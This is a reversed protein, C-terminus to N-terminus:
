SVKHSTRCDTAISQNIKSCVYISMSVESRPCWQVGWGCTCSVSMPQAGGCVSVGSNNGSPEMEEDSGEGEEVEEDSYVAEYRTLNYARTLM